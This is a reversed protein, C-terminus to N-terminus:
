FLSILKNRKLQMLIPLIFFAQPSITLNRQDAGNLNVDWVSTGYIQRDRLTANTLDADVLSSGTLHTRCRNAGSLFTESLNAEKLDAGSLGARLLDPRTKPYERRWLNWVVREQNLIALHKKNAMTNGGRPQSNSCYLAGRRILGSLYPCNDHPFFREHRTEM